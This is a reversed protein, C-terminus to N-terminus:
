SMSLFMFVEDRMYVTDLLFCQHVFCFNYDNNMIVYVVSDSSYCVICIQCYQSSHVCMTIRKMTTSFYLDIYTQLCVGPLGKIKSIEIRKRQVNSEITLIDKNFEIRVSGELIYLFLSFAAKQHRPWSCM